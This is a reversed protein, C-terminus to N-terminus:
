ENVEERRWSIIQGDTSTDDGTMTVDYIIGTEPDIVKIKRLRRAPQSTLSTTENM